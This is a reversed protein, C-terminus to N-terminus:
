IGEWLTKIETRRQLCYTPNIRRSTRQTRASITTQPNWIAQTAPSVRTKVGMRLTRHLEMRKAKPAINFAHNSDTTVKFKQTRIIRIGNERMWQGAPSQLAIQRSRAAWVAPGVKPGLEQLEETMRPRGYREGSLRHQERIHDAFAM